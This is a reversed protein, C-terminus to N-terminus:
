PRNFMCALGFLSKGKKGFSESQGERSRGKKGFSESQGENSWRSLAKAKHDLTTYAGRRICHCQDPILPKEAYVLSADTASAGRHYELKERPQAGPEAQTLDRRSMPLDASRPFEISRSPMYRFIALHPFQVSQRFRLFILEQAILNGGKSRGTVWGTPV